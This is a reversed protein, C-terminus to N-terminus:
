EHDKEERDSSIPNEPYKADWAVKLKEWHKTVIDKVDGDIDRWSGGPPILFRNDRIGIRWEKMQCMVTVHPPEVRERERIKVKWGQNKLKKSLSLEYPM